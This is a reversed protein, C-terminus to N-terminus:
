QLQEKLENLVSNATLNNMDLKNIAFELVEVLLEPINDGYITKDIINYGDQLIEISDDKFIITKNM